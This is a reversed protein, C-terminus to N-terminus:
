LLCSSPTVSLDRYIKHFVPNAKKLTLWDQKEVLDIIPGLDKKSIEAIFEENFVRMLNMRYEPTPTNDIATFLEAHKDPNLVTLGKGKNSDTDTQTSTDRM